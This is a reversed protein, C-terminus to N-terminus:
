YLCRFFLTCAGRVLAYVSWGAYARSTCTYYLQCKTSSFLMLYRISRRAQKLSLLSTLYSRVDKCRVWSSMSSPHVTSTCDSLTQHCQRLCTRLMLPLGNDKTINVRRRRSEAWNNFKLQVCAYKSLLFSSNSSLLLFNSHDSNALPQPCMSCTSHHVCDSQQFVVCHITVM